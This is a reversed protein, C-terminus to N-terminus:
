CYKLSYNFHICKRAIVDNSHLDIGLKKKKWNCNICISEAWAITQKFITVSSIQESIHHGYFVNPTIIIILKYDKAVSSM